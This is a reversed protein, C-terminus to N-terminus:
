SGPFPFYLGTCPSSVACSRGTLLVPADEGDWLSRQGGDKMGGSLAGGQCVRWVCAFGKAKTNPDNQKRILGQKSIWILWNHEIHPSTPLLKTPARAPAACAPTSGWCVPPEANTQLKRRIRVQDKHKIRLMTRLCGSCCSDSYNLTLITSMIGKGPSVLLREGRHLFDDTSSLGFGCSSNSM